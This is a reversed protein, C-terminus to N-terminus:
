GPPPPQCVGGGAAIQAQTRFTNLREWHRPEVKPITGDERVNTVHHMLPRLHTYSASNPVIKPAISFRDLFWGFELRSGPIEAGRM